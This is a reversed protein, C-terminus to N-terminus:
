SPIRKLPDDDTEFPKVCVCAAMLVARVNKHVSVLVVAKVM